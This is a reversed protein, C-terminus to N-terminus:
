PAQWLTTEPHFTTWAKTYSIIALAPTLSQGKLPGAVAAGTAGHWQTGTQKDFLTGERSVFELTRDGVRRQFARATATASDFLVLVPEDAFQDNVLPQQQLQDLPWARADGDAMGYVFQAPNKIFEVRFRDATRSMNLVTTEPHDRRWSNWDTIVSPLLNLQQGKLSGEMAEGLIHSWLTKTESDIMVLSRNWLKGSVAFTLKREGVRSAYM